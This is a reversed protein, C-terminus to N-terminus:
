SSYEFRMKLVFLLSQFLENFDRTSIGYRRSYITVPVEAMKIGKRNLKYVTETLTIFGTSKIDEKAILEVSRRNYLRFGDTYDTLKVGLLLYLFKNIIRSLIIRSKTVGITRGGRIYRSGVVLDVNEENMKKIFRIFEKPNQALDSDMEFFYKNTKDKLGLKLGEIIASGRGLKKLRSIFQINTFQKVSRKIVENEKRPSDDVIIIKSKPLAARIRKVLISVNEVEIFSPFVVVFDNGLINHKNQKM